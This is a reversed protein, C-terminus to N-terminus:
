RGSHHPPPAPRRRTVIRPAGLETNDVIVDAHSSPDVETLYIEEAMRYRDRHLRVAQEAGERTGDRTVGRRLALDPDVELWIRYDWFPAYQPRLAFVSDVILVADEPLQESTDRHDAGTLPDHACLVVRGSGTPGAPQLLLETASTFDYANRYYGEGTLRDYGHLRAHSWPHKFDDLSARATPRGRWRLAAALEHAFTTKGAGTRGDVAVRLRRSSLLNVDEALGELLHRRSSSTTEPMPQTWTSVSEFSATM